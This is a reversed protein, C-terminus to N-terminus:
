REGEGLLKWNDALTFELEKAQRELFEMSQGLM